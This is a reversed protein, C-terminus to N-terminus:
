EVLRDPAAPGVVHHWVHSVVRRGAALNGGPPPESVKDRSGGDRSVWAGAKRTIPRQSIEARGGGHTLFSASGIWADRLTGVAATQSDPQPAPPPSVALWERAVMQCEGGGGGEHHGANGEIWAPEHAAGERVVVAM